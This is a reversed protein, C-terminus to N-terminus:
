RRNIQDIVFLVDLPDLAGDRNPDVFLLNADLIPDLVRSGRRNIEDILALADLPNLGGSSDVDFVLSPNTWRAPDNDRVLLSIVGNIMGPGNAALQVMRPNSPRDNNLVSVAFTAEISGAPILVSTPFSLIGNPTAGLSVTVGGPPAPSRIGVTIQTSSSEVVGEDLETRTAVLVLPQFDTVDISVGILDFNPVMPSFDVKQTGDFLADDVATVSVTASAQNAPITVTSPVTAESSDSSFLSVQLPNSLNSDSRTVTLVAAGAGANESIASRDLSLTVRGARSVVVQFQRESFAGDDDTIRATANYTGPNAYTHGADFFGVTAQGPSGSTSISAAGTSDATGDGWQIRYIFSESTAPSALPMGFGADTFQGLAQLNLPTGAQATKNTIAALVPAANTISQSVALSKAGLVAGGLTVRISFDGNDGYTHNSTVRVTQPILQWGIDQLAALDLRSPLLREGTNFVQVMTPRRGDVMIGNSFHDSDALPVATGHVAIANTGGFASGSIKSDWVSTTGFGLVHMLEHTAVSIFDLQNSQLGAPNTGFYWNRSSDFAISGGWPGVDTEPTALAGPQGRGAVSNLFASRTSRATFGGRDALGGEGSGLSRAGVFVLLENAAITLDTKTIKVGTIPHLFRADWTDGPQPQIASLSDTFKSSLLDAANQLLNRRSVDTFFGSTDLSYDFRFKIPGTAPADQITAASGTGDGWAISGSVTGFLDSVDFARDFALSQGEATM